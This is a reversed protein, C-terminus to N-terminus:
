RGDAILKKFRPNSRLPDWRPDVRLQPVSLSCPVKLLHAIGDIADEQRGAAAQVAAVDELVETGGLADQAVPYLRLARESEAIAADADGLGAHAAALALHVRHDDAKTRALELLTARARQYLGRAREHDGMHHYAHAQLLSRPAIGGQWEFLEVPSEALRDLAGQLNRGRFELWWWLLAHLPNDSRPAKEFVARARAPDGHWLLENRAKFFYSDLQDPMLTLSLDLFHDAQPYQRVLSYTLGLNQTLLPERPSLEFAKQLESLALEVKGQRRHIYGMMQTSESDSPVRGLAAALEELAPGYDRHGWYHYYAFARHVEPSAPDLKRAQLAAQWAKALRADSRDFGYHYLALHAESLRAQAAVYSPDFAAAQEFMRVALEYSQKSGDPANVHQLGQLYAKYAEENVTPTREIDARERPQLRIGLQTVVAEAIESQVVFIDKLVREYHEAWLQTDDKVQILQPTIRVRESTGPQRDWRISGDLIFDVGLDKGVQRTDKGTRDYVAASRRSIVGLGRLAALRTTIEESIGAAFYGDEPRGQNEFTFVVLRKQASSAGPWPVGRRVMYAAIGMALIGVSAGWWPLRRRSPRAVVAAASRSVTGSVLDRKLEELENRLDLATQFRRDPDKELCHHIIRALDPPLDHNLALVPQPADRLISSILDASNGGAFPRTGTAMEYLVVGLSFIDTRPDVPKGQLQEPSMYPVTGLIRGAETRTPDESEGATADHAKLKALGFDLVKVRGETSVMINAPKLDRHTVARAHAASVADALPIAIGLLRELPLGSKGILRALDKGEVLEMTLFRVGDVQEVSHVTVINPHNLSALARGEREFRELREPDSAMEGPLVKLAIKRGLRTDEALYVTGMGGAGLTSLIRYHALATGIM